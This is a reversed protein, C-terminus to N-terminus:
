NLPVVSGVGQNNALYESRYEDSVQQASKGDPNQPGVEPPFLGAAITPWSNIMDDQWYGWQHTGTAHFDYVLNNNAQNIGAQDAKAKFAHTCNNTVAEIAGGEVAPTVSGLANGRLIDGSPVDHEGMLGTGTSIYINKQNRLKEVNLQADNRHAVDGDRDGWMQEYSAGTDKMALVIDASNAPGGSTSPCGSFSGISDYLGEHQEGYVLTTSASMSMGIIARKDSSTGLHSEMPAPLEKTLFTEWKQTDGNGAGDKDLSSPEQWDTYYSFGGSMPIVVNVNGIKNGYFDIASSQQLWNAAGTGGDAGNLLYITPANAADEKARITVVPIDRNMSPSHVKLEEMRGYRDGAKGGDEQVLGEGDTEDQQLYIYKRWASEKAPVYNDADAAARNEFAAPVIAAGSEGTTQAAPTAAGSIGSVGVVTAVSLPIAAALAAAAIRRSRFPGAAAHRHTSSM